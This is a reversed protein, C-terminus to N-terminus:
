YEPKWLGIGSAQETENRVTELKSAKTKYKVLADKYKPAHINAWLNFPLKNPNPDNDYKTQAKELESDLVTFADEKEKEAVTLRARDGDTL